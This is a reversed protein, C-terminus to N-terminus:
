RTADPRRAEDPRRAAEPRPRTSPRRDVARGGPGDVVPEPRREAEPGPRGAQRGPGIALAPAILGGLICFSLAIQSRIM